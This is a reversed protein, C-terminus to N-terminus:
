GAAIGDALISRHYRCFLNARLQQLSERVCANRHHVRGAGEVVEIRHHHLLTEPRQRPHPLVLGDILRQAIGEAIADM